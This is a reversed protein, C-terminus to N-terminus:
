KISLMIYSLYFRDNVTPAVSCRGIQIVYRLQRGEGPSIQLKKQLPEGGSSHSSNRKRKGKGERLESLSDAKTLDTSIDSLESSNSKIDDNIKSRSRTVPVNQQLPLTTVEYIPISSSESMVVEGLFLFAYIMSAYIMSM